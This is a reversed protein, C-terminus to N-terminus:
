TVAHCVCGPIQLLVHIRYFPRPSKHLCHYFVRPSGISKVPLFWTKLVSHPDVRLTDNFVFLGSSVEEEEEEEEEEELFELNPSIGSPRFAPTRMRQARQHQRKKSAQNLRNHLRSEDGRSYVNSSNSVLSDQPVCLCADNKFVPVM